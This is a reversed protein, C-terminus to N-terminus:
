TAQNPATFGKKVKVDCYVIVDTQGLSLGTLVLLVIGRRSHSRIDVNNM